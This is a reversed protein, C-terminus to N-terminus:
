ESGARGENGPGDVQQGLAELLRAKRVPKSVHLDCGADLIKRTDDGMAHATLAIIPVRSAGAEAEQERIRRTAEYGDMEPMQLDMLIVDFAGPQFLALAEAGNGALQLRYASKNLYAAIVMQNDLADEVLLIDLIRGEGSVAPPSERERRRSSPRPKAVNDGTAVPLPLSFFFRAGEGMVSEVDIRGGMAEVLQRCIALGLGTGGYRRTTTADAQTFPKFITERKAPAIGIGTDLVEFLHTMGDNAPSVGVRVEGRETFKIANGMLNLLIQRLRPADGIVQVPTGDVIDCSLRIEKDLASVELIQTVGALLERLDFATHELAMQGAEIKSLDLIDSILALLSESARTQAALYRQQEPTEVTEALLDGIGIITNLPTRIEHSMTALFRSKATNAKEAQAKAEKLEDDLRKRETIDRIVASFFQGDSEEWHSVSIELPFEGGDKRLGTLERISSVSRSKDRATAVRELGQQHDARFREPMLRSAPHGLIEGEAYGFVDKAGKNWFVIRGRADISVIADHVSQTVSRFRGESERLAAESRRRMIGLQEILRLIQRIVVWGLGLLLILFIALNRRDDRQKTKLWAMHDRHHNVHLRKFQEMTIVFAPLMGSVADLFGLPDVPGKLDWEERIVELQAQAKELIPLFEPHRDAYDGFQEQISFIAEFADNLIHIHDGHRGPQFTAEGNKRSLLHMREMAHHTRMRQLEAQAHAGLRMSALHYQAGIVESRSFVADQWYLFGVLAATLILVTGILLHVFFRVSFADLKQQLLSEPSM